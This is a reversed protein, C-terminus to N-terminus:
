IKQYLESLIESDDRDKRLSTTKNAKIIPTRKYRRVTNLWDECREFHLAWRAENSFSIECYMCVNERKLNDIVRNKNGKSCTRIKRITNLPMPSLFLTNSLRFLSCTHTYQGM